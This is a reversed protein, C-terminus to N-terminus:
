VEEEEVPRKRGVPFRLDVFGWYANLFFLWILSVMGMNATQEHMVSDVIIAMVSGFYYMYLKKRHNEHFITLADWDFVKRVNTRHKQFLQYFRFFEVVTFSLGALSSWLFSRNMDWLDIAFINMDQTMSFYLAIFVLSIGCLLMFAWFLLFQNCVHQVIGVIFRYVVMGLGGKERRPAAILYEKFSLISFLLFYNLFFSIFGLNVFIITEGLDWKLLFFGVLSTVCWFVTLGFSLLKDFPM